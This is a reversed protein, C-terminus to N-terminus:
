EGSINVVELSQWPARWYRLRDDGGLPVVNLTQFADKIVVFATESNFEAPTRTKFRVLAGVRLGAPRKPLNTPPVDETNSVLEVLSHGANLTTGSEHRLKFTSPNVKIVTWLGMAAWKGGGLVRVKDGVHIDTM